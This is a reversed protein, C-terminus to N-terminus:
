GPEQLLGIPNGDPDKLTVILKGGGVDAIPGQAEAGTEVLADLVKNIDRVHLYAVPGTMGKAHGNPDLGFDQGDVNYGVYYSEDAYPAVGLIRSYLRKAAAVDKVPYIITKIGSTM